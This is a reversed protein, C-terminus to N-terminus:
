LHMPRFMILSMVCALLVTHFHSLHSFYLDSHIENKNPNVDLSQLSHSYFPDSFHKVVHKDFGTLLYVIKLHPGYCLITDGLFAAKLWQCQLFPTCFVAM